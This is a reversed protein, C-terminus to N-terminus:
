KVKGLNDGAVGRWKRWYKRNKQYFRIRLNPYLKDQWSCDVFNFNHLLFLFVHFDQKNGNSPCHNFEWSMGIHFLLSWFAYLLRSHDTCYISGYQKYCDQCFFMCFDGTRLFWNTRYARGLFLVKLEIALWCKWFIKISICWNNRKGQSFILTKSFINTFKKLIM